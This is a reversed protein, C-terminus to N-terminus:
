RSAIIYNEKLKKDEKIQNWDGDQSNLFKFLHPKILM